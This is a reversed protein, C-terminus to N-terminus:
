LWCFRSVPGRNDFFGIREPIFDPGNVAIAQALEALIVHTIFPIDFTKARDLGIWTLHSLEGDADTFHAADADLETAWALFFRADFRRPRGLPTVARFFLTLKRPDRAGLSLGTEEQLERFAANILAQPPCTGDYGLRAALTDPIAHALPTDHDVADVTGGAFVFKEPMFAANKGRQGMLVEPGNLGQRLLIVSAADRIPPDSVM